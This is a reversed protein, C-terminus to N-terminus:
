GHMTLGGSVSLVQGTIYDSAPSSFFLITQGIEGPRAVRKFPIANTLAEQLKEGTADLFLPTATPGPAVCNCNIRYRATERALAKTFAIIAGKSGSYFTEGSSGVRGADSAVTVIKGGKGAEIMSPLLRHIMRVPGLYNVNIILNWDQPDNKLFPKIIDVGAVSAVIDVTGGAREQVGDVFSDVSEPKTLDLPIFEAKGGQARIAAMAAEGAAVNVDGGYVVAGAQAYLEATSRGIGSACGTLLVRKGSLDTAQQWTFDIGDAM